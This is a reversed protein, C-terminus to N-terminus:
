TERQLTHLTDDFPHSQYLIIALSLYLVKEMKGARQKEGLSYYIIRKFTWNIAIKRVPIIIDGTKRIAWGTTLWATTFGSM